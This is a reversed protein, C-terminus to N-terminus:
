DKVYRPSVGVIFRGLFNQWSFVLLGSGTLGLAIGANRYRYATELANDSLANAEHRKLQAMGKASLWIGSAVMTLAVIGALVDAYGYTLLWFSLLSIVYLSLLALTLKTWM